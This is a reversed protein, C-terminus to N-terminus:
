FVYTIGLEAHINYSIKGHDWWLPPADPVSSIPTYLFQYNISGITEIKANFLINKYNWEGLLTGAIDVWEGLPVTLETSAKTFRIIEKQGKSVEHSIRPTIEIYAHDGVIIPRVEM